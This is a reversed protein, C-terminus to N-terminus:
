GVGPPAPLSWHWIGGIKPSVIKLRAKARYLTRTTIHADEAAKLVEVAPLPEKDLLERLFDRARSEATEIQPVTPADGFELTGDDRFDFGFPESLRGMSNKLMSVRRESTGPGGPLDIAWIVRTPQIISTSGRIRDLTLGYKPDPDSDRLKNIHHNLITPLNNDRALDSLWLCTELMQATNEDKRNGGSLSDTVILQISKDQALVSEIQQRDSDDHLVIPRFPDEYPTLLNELPLGWSSARESNLGQAGETEIWLVRGPGLPFESGDPWCTERVYSDAIRLDLISKGVGVGAVVLTLLGRPLWGKWDWSIPALLEKIKAWNGPTAPKKELVPLAESRSAHRNVGLWKALAEVTFRKGGTGSEACKCEFWLAGTWPEELTQSLTAAGGCSERRCTFARVHPGREPDPHHEIGWSTLLAAPTM